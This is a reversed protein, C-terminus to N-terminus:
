CQESNAKGLKPQAPYMVSTTKLMGYFLNMSCNPNSPIIWSWRAWSHQGHCSWLNVENEVQPLNDLNETCSFFFRKTYATCTCLSINGKKWEHLIPDSTSGLRGPLDPICASKGKESANSWVTQSKHWEKVPRNQLHMKSSPHHHYRTTVFLKIFLM